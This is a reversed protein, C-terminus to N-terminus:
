LICRKTDELIMAAGREAVMLCPANTNGSPVSPFISADVVRLGPVGHVRLRADVVSEAANDGMRCTGSPHFVTWATREIHEYLAEDSNVSPGPSMEEAIVSALPDAAALQRVLRMGRVMLDRDHETSLYNAQIRPAQMPNVSEIRVSGRSTPRCPNFGVLFGPFADPTVMPRTNSPARTYSLPCFYLQLDPLEADPTSCVFGGAHNGSLSLPGRRTLAYRAAIVARARWTLLEENLSPVTARFSADGGLHDQLHAGVHANACRVVIGHDNLLDPDGIGARQLLAPSNVAGASLIVEHEALAHHLAGAQQWSVGVVQEGQWNLATVEAGTIVTLNSRSKVPHLYSRAASARMGGDTTLQYRCVGEFDPGNYDDTEPFGLSKAAELFRMSLPHVDGTTDYVAQPGTTGRHVSPAGSWREIRRYVPSVHEWGWGQASKDWENYDSPFGRSWVMANIASSGGLVRGRPWYISRDHLAPEPQTHYRWNVRPETFLKGYGIPLHTWFGTFLGRDSPGAELLLVRFRSCESLRNALVCGSSGGGVIIFDYTRL